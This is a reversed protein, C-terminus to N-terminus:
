KGPLMKALFRQLRATYIFIIALWLNFPPVKESVGHITLV